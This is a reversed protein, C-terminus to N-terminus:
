QVYFELRQEVEDRGYVKEITRRANAGVVGRLRPNAILQGLIARAEDSNSFLFGNEGHVIWDAYGGYNHCVVPLGCAM